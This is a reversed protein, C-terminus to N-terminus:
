VRRRRLAPLVALGLLAVGAPEPVPTTTLLVRYGQRPPSTDSPANGGIALTYQGAPVVWSGTVTEASDNFVHGLYSLKEAWEVDGRNNFTHWHDIAEGGNLADAVAQSAPDNDWGSWLTFAPYFDAVPAFGGINGAGAYPVAADRQITITLVTEQGLTLAAWHSTHAWGFGDEGAFGEDQWSWASVTGTAFGSDAGGLEAQWAYSIGGAVPDGAVITAASLSAALGPLLMAALLRDRKKSSHMHNTM